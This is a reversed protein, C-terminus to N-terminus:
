VRMSQGTHNTANHAHVAADILSLQVTTNQTDEISLL